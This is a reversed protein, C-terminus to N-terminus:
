YGPQERLEREGATNDVRVRRQKRRRPREDDHTGDFQLVSHAKILLDIPTMSRTYRPVKLPLLGRKLADYIARRPHWHTLM